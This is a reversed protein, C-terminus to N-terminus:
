ESTKPPFAKEPTSNRSASRMAPFGTTGEDPSRLAHSAPSPMTGVLIKGQPPITRSSPQMRRSQGSEIESVTMKASPIAPSTAMAWPYGSIRRPHEPRDDLADAERRARLAPADDRGAQQDRAALLPPLRHRLRALQGRTGFAAAQHVLGRAGRGLCAL